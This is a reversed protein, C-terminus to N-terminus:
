YLKMKLLKCLKKPETLDTSKRTTVLNPGFQPWITVPQSGSRNKKVWASEVCPYQKPRGRREVRTVLSHGTTVMMLRHPWQNSCPTVGHCCFGGFDELARQGVESISGILRTRGVLDELPDHPPNIEDALKQLLIKYARLKPSALQLLLDVPSM